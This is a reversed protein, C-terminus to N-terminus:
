LRGTYQAPAQDNIKLYMQSQLHKFIVNEGYSLDQQYGQGMNKDDSLQQPDLIIFLNRSFHVIPSESIHILEQDIGCVKNLFNGAILCIANPNNAPFFRIYILENFHFYNISKEWDWSARSTQPANSGAAEPNAVKM